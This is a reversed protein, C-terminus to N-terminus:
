VIKIFPINIVDDHGFGSIGTAPYMSNIEIPKSLDVDYNIKPGDFNPDKGCGVLAIMVVLLAIFSCIKKIM